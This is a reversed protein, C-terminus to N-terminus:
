NEKQEEKVSFKSMLLNIVENLHKIENKYSDSTRSESSKVSESDDVLENIKRIMADVDNVLSKDNQYNQTIDRIEKGVEAGLKTEEKKASVFDDQIEKIM